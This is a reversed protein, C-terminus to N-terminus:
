IWSVVLPDRHIDALCVIDMGLVRSVVSRDSRRDFGFNIMIELGYLEREIVM